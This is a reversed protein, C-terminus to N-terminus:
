PIQGTGNCLGCYRPPRCDANPCRMDFVGRRMADVLARYEPSNMTESLQAWQYDDQAKQSCAGPCLPAEFALDIWSTYEGCGRCRSGATTWVFGDLSHAVLTGVVVGGEPDSPTILLELM